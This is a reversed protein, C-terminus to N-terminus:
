RSLAIGLIAGSLPRARCMLDRESLDFVIQRPIEPEGFALLNHDRSVAFRCANEDPELALIVPDLVTQFMM